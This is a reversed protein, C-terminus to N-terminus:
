VLNLGSCTSFFSRLQRDRSTSKHLVCCNQGSIRDGPLKSGSVKDPYKVIRQPANEATMVPREATGKRAARLGIDGAQFTAHV